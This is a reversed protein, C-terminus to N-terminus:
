ERPPRLQRLLRLVYERVDDKAAVVFDMHGADPFERYSTYAGRGADVMAEYHARCNAAVIVGDARGAVIDVPVDLLHYQAAIDPPTRAAYRALNGAGAPGGYDYLQFRGSRIWQCVHNGTHLSIGPMAAAAYHPLQLARDWQSTDGSFCARIFARVLEQVAPLHQLDHTLKFTVFRLPSTPLHFRAGALPPTGDPAARPHARRGAAGGKKMLWPSLWDLAACAVPILKIFPVAALPPNAQFGAPTLLVLRDLRHPRGLNRCMVAYILLAAGGMSHGVARLRYPQPLPDGARRAPRPPLTSPPRSSVGEGGVEEGGAAPPASLAPGRGGFGPGGSESAPRPPLSTSALSAPSAPEEPGGAWSETPRRRGATAGRRAAALAGRLAARVPTLAPAVLPVAAADSGGAAAVAARISAENPPAHSSALAAAAAAAAAPDLSTARLGTRLGARGGGGGGAGAPVESDSACPRSRPLASEAAAQRAFDEARAASTPPPPAPAAPAAASGAAAAEAVAAKRAAKRGAEAAEAMKIVHIHDVTAGLDELAMENVTYRWYRWGECARPPPPASPSSPSPAAADDVHACPPNARSNALWVDSGADWAAFALSGTVGSSVWGVPTDLIGHVFLAVDRGGLRPLRTVRLVYGDSTTVTHEEAPYGAATAYDAASHPAGLGPAAAFSKSRRFRAARPRAALADWSDEAAAASASAAAASRADAAAVAAAAMSRPTRPAGGGGGGGAAAAAAAADIPEPPPPMFLVFRVARRLGDFAAALGEEVGLRADELLGRRKVAGAEAGTNWAGREFLDSGNRRLRSAAGATAARAGTAMPLSGGAASAPTLGGGAGVVSIPVTDGAVYLRARSLVGAAAGAAAAAARTASRQAVAAAGARCPVALPPVAASTSPDRGPSPSAAPRGSSADHFTIGSSRRPPPSPSRSTSPPGATTHTHLPSPSFTILHYFFLLARAVRM